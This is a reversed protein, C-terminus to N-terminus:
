ILPDWSMSASHRMYARICYLAICHLAICRLAVCVCGCCLVVCCLVNRKIQLRNWDVFLMLQHAAITRSCIYFPWFMCIFCIYISSACKTLCLRVGHYVYEVDVHCLARWPFCCIHTFICLIYFKTVWYMVHMLVYIVYYLLWIILNTINFLM